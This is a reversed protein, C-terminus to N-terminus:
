KTETSMCHGICGSIKVDPSCKIDLTANFALGLDQVAADQGRMFFHVLSNKFLNGTFADALLVTGGTLATLPKMELLGTQDLACSFLEICHGNKAVRAGLADYFKGAKKLYPANDKEIDHHSRIPERLDDSVVQGPGQNCPGGIFLLIRAGTNPYSVELMSVAISVAAGVCRLRRKGVPTHWPSRQIHNILNLFDSECTAYPQLFRSAAHAPHQAQTSGPVSATAFSASGGSQTGIGLM